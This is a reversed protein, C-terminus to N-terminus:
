RSICRSPYGEFELKEEPTSVPIRNYRYEPFIWSIFTVPVFGYM